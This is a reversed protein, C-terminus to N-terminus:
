ERPLAQLATNPHFTAWAFWFLRIAPLVSGDTTNTAHVMGDAAREVVVPVGGLETQLRPHARLYEDTVALASKGLSVGFVVMKPHIRQDRNSLPFMIRDSSAYEAYPNGQYDVQFGTDTSLVQTDPHESRWTSWEIQTIAVPKLEQGTRPGVIGRGIVQAWLTQSDRDYMVLDSNHLVGSVGFTTVSDGIRRSFAAGSGCLPCYTIAIPQGAVTDNVIEHRSLISVPYARSDGDVTLALVIDDDGVFSAEAASVFKPADIAPICDREPCGQVLDALPVEAPTNEDFKFTESLVNIPWSRNARARAAEDEAAASDQANADAIPTLALTALVLLEVFFSKRFTSM